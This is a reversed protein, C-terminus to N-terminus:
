LAAREPRLFEAQFLPSPNGQFLPFIQNRPLHRPHSDPLFDGASCLHHQHNIKNGTTKGGPYGPFSAGCLCAARCPPKRISQNKIRAKYYGGTRLLFTFHNLVAHLCRRRKFPTLDAAGPCPALQFQRPQSQEPAPPERPLVSVIFM